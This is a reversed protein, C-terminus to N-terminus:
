RDLGLETLVEATHEGHGPVDGVGPRTGGVLFPSGITPISGVPSGVNTVLRNHALQPHEM